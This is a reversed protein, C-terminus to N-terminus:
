AHSPDTTAARTTRKVAGRVRALTTGHKEAAKRLSLKSADAALVHDPIDLPEVWDLAARVRAVTARLKEM